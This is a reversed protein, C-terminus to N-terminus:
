EFDRAQVEEVNGVNDNSRSEFMGNNVCCSNKIKRLVVYELDMVMMMVVPVFVGLGSSLILDVMKERTAM